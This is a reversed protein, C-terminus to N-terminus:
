ELGVIRLWNNSAVVLVNVMPVDSPPVVVLVMAAPTVVSVTTLAVGPRSQRMSTVVVPVLGRCTNSLAM